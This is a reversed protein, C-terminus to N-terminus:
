GQVDLVRYWREGFADELMSAYGEGCLNKLRREVDGYLRMAAKTLVTDREGTHQGLWIVLRRAADRAVFLQRFPEPQTSIINVRKSRPLGKDWKVAPVADLSSLM